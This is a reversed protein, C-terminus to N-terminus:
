ETEIIGRIAPRSRDKVPRTLGADSELDAEIHVCSSGAARAAMLKEIPHVVEGIDKRVKMRAFKRHTM